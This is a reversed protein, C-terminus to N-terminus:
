DVAVAYGGSNDAYWEVYDNVALELTGATANPPITFTSADGIPFTTGGVRGVLEGFSAGEVACTGTENSTCAYQQGAPGSAGERGSGATPHFYVGSGAADPMLTFARGTARLDIPHGPQVALGTSTWGADAHVEVVLVSGNAGSGLALAVAAVAPIVAIRM